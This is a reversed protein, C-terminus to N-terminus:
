VAERTVLSCSGPFLRLGQYVLWAIARIVALSACYVVTKIAGFPQIRSYVHNMSWAIATYLDGTRALGFRERLVCHYVLKHILSNFFNGMERVRASYAVRAWWPIRGRRNHNLILTSAESGHRLAATVGNGTLPDPVAAAEGAILWNTGCVGRYARCTFSTVSAQELKSLESGEALLQSAELENRFIQDTTKGAARERKLRSGATIYGVSVQEPSIPIEWVWRMYEDAANRAYITTGESADTAAVYGWIGVKRPGYEKYELGFQRALFSSASGSADVFWRAAHFFGTADIVATLKKGNSQVSVAREQITEVGLDAAKAQLERHVRVRDVHLTRLEINFPPRGLWDSPTYEVRSGNPLVVKVHRKYTAMGEAILKDMELGLERFLEPASWDLSEGVLHEFSQRPELCTVSLGARALHISTSLGALGGGIVVVDSIAANRGLSPM